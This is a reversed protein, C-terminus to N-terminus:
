HRRQFNEMNDPISRIDQLRRKGDGAGQEMGEDRVQSRSVSFFSGAQYNIQAVQRESTRAVGRGSRFWFNTSLIWAPSDKTM